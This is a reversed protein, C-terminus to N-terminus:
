LFPYCPPFLVRNMRVEKDKRDKLGFAISKVARKM